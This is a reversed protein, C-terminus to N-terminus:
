IQKIFKGHFSNIYYRFADLLHTKEPDSKDIKGDANVQVTELDKILYKCSPHIKVRKHKELISNVLLRSGAHSPNTEPPVLRREQLRLERAIITYFNIRADLASRNAGSADGTVYEIRNGFDAYIKKCLQSVDSNELRYEKIIHLEHPAGQGVIATMPNINFDFSVRVPGPKPAFDVVHRDREFAYAFTFTSLLVFEGLIEQRFVVDSVTKKYNEIEAVDIFPNDYPSLHFVDFREPALSAQAYLEYFYTGRGKPTGLAYLQSKPNDLLMPYLANEFLYKDLVIGAENIFIKDYKFGEIREKQEASRLDVLSERKSGPYFVITHFADRIEILGSKIFEAALPIFYLQVTKKINEFISDVYLMRIAAGSTGLEFIFNWITVTGGARRGKTALVIKAKSEVVALQAALYSIQYRLSSM